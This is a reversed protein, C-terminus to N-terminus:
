TMATTDHQLAEGRYIPVIMGELTLRHTIEGVSHSPVDDRLMSSVTAAFAGISGLSTSM